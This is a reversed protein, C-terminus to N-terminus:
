NEKKRGPLLLTSKVFFVSKFYFIYLTLHSFEKGSIKSNTNLKRTETELVLYLQFQCLFQFLAMLLQIFIRQNVKYIKQFM